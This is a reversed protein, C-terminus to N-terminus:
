ERIDGRRFNQLSKDILIQNDRSTKLESFWLAILVGITVILLERSFSITSSILNEKSGLNKM